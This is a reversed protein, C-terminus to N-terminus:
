IYNAPGVMRCYGEDDLWVKAEGGRAVVTVPLSTDMVENSLKAAAVMGTGCAKTEGCGREWVRVKIRNPAVIEIFEVNTRNPFIDHTEIKPGLTTVPANEVNDVFTAAHPNGVDVIYFHIGELLAPKPVIKVKGVQVEIKDPNEGDWVVALRGAKTDVIFEGPNVLQNDVAFRAACRLGNGCMESESGDANWFSMRVRSSDIPTVVLLGDAGGDTKEDCLERVKATDSPIYPGRIVAFKNGLGQM